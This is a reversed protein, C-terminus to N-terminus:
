STVVIARENKSLGRLKRQVNLLGDFMSMLEKSRGGQPLPQCTEHCRHDMLVQVFDRRIISLM